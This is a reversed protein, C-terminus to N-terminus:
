LEGKLNLLIISDIMQCLQLCEENNLRGTNNDKLISRRLEGLETLSGASRIRQSHTDFTM